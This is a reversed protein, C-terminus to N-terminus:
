DKSIPKFIDITIIKDKYYTFGIGKKYFIHYSYEISDNSTDIVEDPVSYIGRNESLKTKFGVSMDDKIRFNKCWSWKYPKYSLRIYIVKGNKTFLSFVPAPTYSAGWSYYYATDFDLKLEPITDTNYGFEDFWLKTEEYTRIHDPEGINILIDTINIGIYLNKVGFGPKISYDDDQGFIPPLVFILITLLNLKIKM